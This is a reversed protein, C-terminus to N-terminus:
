KDNSYVINPNISQLNKIFGNKDKPSIILPTKQQIFYIAIRDLSAAPAALISNTDKIKRIQNIDYNTTSLMSYKVSLINNHITYR